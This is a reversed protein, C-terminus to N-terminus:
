TNLEWKSMFFTGLGKFGLQEGITMLVDDFGAASLAQLYDEHSDADLPSIWHMNSNWYGAPRQILWRTGGSFETEVHSGSPIANGRYTLERFRETIGMGDCYKLLQLRLKPELGLLYAHESVVTGDEEWQIKALQGPKLDPIAFEGMPHPDITL